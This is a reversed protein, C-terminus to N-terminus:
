TCKVPEKFAEPLTQAVGNEKQARFIKDVSVRNYSFAFDDYPYPHFLRFKAERILCLM